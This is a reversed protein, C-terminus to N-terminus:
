LTLVGALANSRVLNQGIWESIAPGVEKAFQRANGTFGTVSVHFDGTNVTVSKSTSSASPSRGSASAQTSHLLAEQAQQINLVAGSRSPIIIEPAHEGVLYPHDAMVGGGMARRSAAKLLGYVYTHKDWVDEAFSAPIKNTILASMIGPMWYRKNFTNYMGEPGVPMAGLLDSAGENNLIHGTEPARWKTRGALGLGSPLSHDQPFFLEPGREGVTYTQNKIALGGKSMGGGFWTNMEQAPTMSGGLGLANM